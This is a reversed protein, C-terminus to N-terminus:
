MLLTPHPVSLSHISSNGDTTCAIELELIYRQQLLTYCPTPCHYTDDKLLCDQSSRWRRNSIVTVTVTVRGRGRMRMFGM